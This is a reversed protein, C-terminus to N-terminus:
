RPIRIHPHTALPLAWVRELRGGIDANSDARPRVISGGPEERRSM